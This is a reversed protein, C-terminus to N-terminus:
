RRPRKASRCTRCTVFRGSGDHESQWYTPSATPPPRTIWSRLSGLVAANTSRALPSVGTGSACFLVSRVAEAPSKRKTGDREGTGPPRSLLRLCLTDYGTAGSGMSGSIALALADLDGAHCLDRLRRPGDAQNALLVHLPQDPDTGTWPEGSPLVVAEPDAYVAAPVSAAAEGAMSTEVMGGGSMGGAMGGSGMGGSM